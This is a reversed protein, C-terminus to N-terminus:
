RIQQRGPVAHVAWDTLGIALQEKTLGKQLFEDIYTDVVIRYLLAQSFTLFGREKWFGSTHYIPLSLLYRVRIVSFSVGKRFGFHRQDPSGSAFFLRCLCPGVAAHREIAVPRKIHTFPLDPSTRRSLDEEM